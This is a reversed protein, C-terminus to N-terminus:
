GPMDRMDASFFSGAAMITRSKRMTSSRVAWNCCAICCPMNYVQGKAVHAFYVYIKGPMLLATPVEKVALVMQAGGLDESLTLGATQYEDDRYVRIPSPQILFRLGYMSQLLVMDEPILPVRREWENKDERRIGITVAM